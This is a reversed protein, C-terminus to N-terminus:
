DFNVRIATNGAVQQMFDRIAEERTKEGSAYLQSQDIFWNNIQLDYETLANGDAYHGAPAFVEFMNQGGLFSIEGNSIDMVTGSAVVDRVDSAPNFLGNAWLYQLGDTSSDLTVWEIFSGVFGRAEEPLSEHAMVWTGGWFFGTPPVAVAWDGYTDGAHNAMVFNILWAPGFFSFVEREGIGGMDANWAPSWAGADNMLGENYLAYHLNMFDARVPDIVLEGDVVWPSGSTRIVQWLDGAGSVAAYGAENLQRAADLFRDWGPGVINQIETPDDTGFVSQAISRRYIMAGGTAQFGLGVVEGNRTGIEIAYSAIAAENILRDVDIGLETYPLAHRSMTGQTYRLAFAAEATFIHPIDRDRRSELAQDLAIMYAGDQDNIITVEISYRAAYEPNNGLFMAMMDPVEGNFSWLNIVQDGEGLTMNIVEETETDSSVETEGNGVAAEGGGNDDCAVLVFTLMLVLSALLFLGKKKFSM